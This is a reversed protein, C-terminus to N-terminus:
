PSPSSSSSAIFVCFECDALRPRPSPNAASAGLPSSPKVTSSSSINVPCAAVGPSAALTAAVNTPKGETGNAPLSARAGFVFKM